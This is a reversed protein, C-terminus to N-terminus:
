VSERTDTEGRTKRKEAELGQRLKKNEQDMTAKQSKLENRLSTIEESQNRM